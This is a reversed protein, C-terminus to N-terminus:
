LRGRLKDALNFVQAEDGPTPEGAPEPKPTVPPGEDHDFLPGYFEVARARLLVHRPTGPQFFVEVKGGFWRERNGGSLGPNTDLVKILSQDTDVEVVGGVPHGDVVFVLYPFIARDRTAFLKM